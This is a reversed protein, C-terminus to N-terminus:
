ERQQFRFDKVLHFRQCEPVDGGSETKRQTANDRCRHEKELTTVVGCGPRPKPPPPKFLLFTNEGLGPPSSRLGPPLMQDLGTGQGQPNKPKYVCGGAGRDRGEHEHPTGGTHSDM